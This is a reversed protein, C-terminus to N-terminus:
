NECITFISDYDVVMLTSKGVSKAYQQRYVIFNDEDVYIYDLDQKVSNLDLNKM